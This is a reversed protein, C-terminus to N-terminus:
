RTYILRTDKRATAVHNRAVCPILSGRESPRDPLLGVRASTIRLNWCTKLQKSGTLKTEVLMVRSGPSTMKVPVWRLIRTVPM